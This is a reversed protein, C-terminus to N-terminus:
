EDFHPYFKRRYDDKFRDEPKIILLCIQGTIDAVRQALPFITTNDAHLMAGNRFNTPSFVTHSHFDSDGRKKQHIGILAMHDVLLPDFILQTLEMAKEATPATEKTFSLVDHYVPTKGDNNWFNSAKQFQLLAAESNYPNVGFGKFLIENGSIPYSIVNRLCNEDGKTHLILEFIEM